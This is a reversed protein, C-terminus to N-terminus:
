PIEGARPPNAAEPAADLIPGPDLLRYAPGEPERNPFRTGARPRQDRATRWARVTLVAAAAWLPVLTWLALTMALAGPTMWGPLVVDALVAQEEYDRFPPHWVILLGRYAAVPSLVQALYFWGPLAGAQLGRHGIERLVQWRTGNEFLAVFFVWLGAGIPAGLGGTGIALAAGIAYFASALLGHSVAFAVVAGDDTSSAAWDGIGAGLFGAGFLLAVHVFAAAGFAGLGMAPAGRARFAWLGMLLAPVTAALVFMPRDMAVGNSFSSPGPWGYPRDESPFANSLNAGVLVALGLGLGIALAFPLGSRLPREFLRWAPRGRARRLAAGAHRARTGTGRATRRLWPIVLRGRAAAVGLATRLAGATM